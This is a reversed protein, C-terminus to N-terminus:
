LLDKKFFPGFSGTKSAEAKCGQANKGLHTNSGVTRTAAATRTVVLVWAALEFRSAGFRSAGFRSAEAKSGQANKGLSSPITGNTSPKSIARVLLVTDNKPQSEGNRLHVYGVWFVEFPRRFLSQKPFNEL